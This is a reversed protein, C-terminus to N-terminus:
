ARFRDASYKGSPNPKIAASGLAVAVFPLHEVVVDLAQVVLPGGRADGGGVGHTRSVTQNGIKGGHL